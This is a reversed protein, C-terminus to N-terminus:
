SPDEKLQNIQGKCRLKVVPQFSSFKVSTLKLEFLPLFIGSPALALIEISETGAPINFPATMNKSM